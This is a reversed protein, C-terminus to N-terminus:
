SKQGRLKNLITLTYLLIQNTVKLKKPEFFPTQSKGKKIITTINTGKNPEKKQKKSQNKPRRLKNTKKRKEEKKIALLLNKQLKNIISKKLKNKTKNIIQTV